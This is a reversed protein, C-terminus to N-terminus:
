KMRTNDKAQVSAKNAKDEIMQRFSSKINNATDVAVSNSSYSDFKKDVMAEMQTIAQEVSEANQADFQITGLEGDLEASLKQLEDLTKTLKDLGKIEFM